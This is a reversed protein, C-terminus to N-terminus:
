DFSASIENGEATVFTVSGNYALQMGQLYDQAEGNDYVWIVVYFVQTNGVDGGIKENEVFLCDIDDTRNLVNNINNEDRIGKVGTKIGLDMNYEDSLSNSNIFDDNKFKTYFTEENDDTYVNAIRTELRSDRPTTVIYGDLFMVSDSDSEVVIKYIQCGANGFDDDCGQKVANPAQNNRMPVLGFANDVDTVKTVRLKFSTTAADGYVVNNNSTRATFYAFTGGIIVISLVICAIFVYFMKNNTNDKM